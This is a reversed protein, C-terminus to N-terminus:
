VDFWKKFWEEVPWLIKFVIPLFIYLAILITWALAFPTVVAYFWVGLTSNLWPLFDPFFRMALTPMGFLIVAAFVAWLLRWGGLLIYYGNSHWKATM